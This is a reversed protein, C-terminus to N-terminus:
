YKVTSKKNQYEKPLVQFHKKFESSFRSQSSYGVLAAVEAISLNKNTLLQAAYKMRHIRMHKAISDGYVSKFIQKLTTKNLLYQKALFDISYRQNLNTIMLDHIATIINIQDTQYSNLVTINDFNLNVLIILLEMIKSKLYDTQFLNPLNYFCKFFDVMECNSSIALSFNKHRFKTKIASWLRFDFFNNDISFDIYISIGQYYNNPFTIISNACIDLTNIFLDNPGLYIKQNNLMDWGARGKLCYNIALINPKPQHYHRFSNKNEINLFELKINPLIEILKNQAISKIEM